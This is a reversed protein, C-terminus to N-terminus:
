SQVLETLFRVLRAFLILYIVKTCLANKDVASHCHAYFFLYKLKVGLNM